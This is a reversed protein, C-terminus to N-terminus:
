DLTEHDYIIWAGDVKQMKFLHDPLFPPEVDLEVDPMKPIELTPMRVRFHFEDDVYESSVIEAQNYMKLMSEFLKQELQRTVKEAMEEVLRTPVGDSTESRVEGIRIQASSNRAMSEFHEKVNGTLIPRMADIDLNRLATVFANMMDEASQEIYEPSVKTDIADGDATSQQAAADTSLQATDTESQGGAEDLQVFFDEIQGMEEASIQPKDEPLPATVAGKRTTDTQAMLHASKNPTSTAVEVSPLSDEKSSIFQRTGIFALVIIAVIGATIKPVTGVKMVTLGGSYIQKLTTVPSVFVGTLLHGLRKALKQKARSLRACVAQYSIGHRGILEKHSEGELYYASAVQRETEPLTEIAQAIIQQQEAEISEREPSNDSNLLNEDVEDIPITHSQNRRMWDRCQNRAITVLWYRFRNPNSLQHMNRHATIFTEQAIDERDQTNDIFASITADIRARHKEVLTEFAKEDGSQTSEVLEADTLM